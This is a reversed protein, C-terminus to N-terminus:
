EYSDCRCFKSPIGVESCTRTPIEDFLSKSNGPALDVVARMNAVRESASSNAIDQFPVRPGGLLDFLHQLTTFLDFATVLAQQNAQIAAAELPHQQVFSPPLIVFLFPFSCEIDGCTSWYKYPSMHNGHDSFLITITDKTQADSYLQQLFAATDNDMTHLVELSSEHGANLRCALRCAGTCISASHALSCRQTQCHCYRRPIACVLVQATNSVVQATQYHIRIPVRAGESRRYM